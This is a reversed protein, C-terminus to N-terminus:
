RVMAKETQFIRVGPLDRIGVKVATRIAKEITARDIYPRLSEIRIAEWDEIEFTWESKLTSLTGIDTRTRALDAPKANAAQAAVSATEQAALSAAQASGAREAHAARHDARRAEQAKRAAEQAQQQFAEAERRKRDEEARLREREKAAERSLHATIRRNLDTLQKALAARIPQFFGDVARESHLYPEKEQVRVSEVARERERIRTLLDAAADHDVKTTIEDPILDIEAAFAPELKTFSEYDMGLSAIIDEPTPVIRNHGITPTTAKPM